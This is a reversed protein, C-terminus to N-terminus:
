HTSFVFNYFKYIVSIHIISKSSQYPMQLPNINDKVRLLIEFDLGFSIRLILILVQLRTTDIRKLSYRNYEAALGYLLM